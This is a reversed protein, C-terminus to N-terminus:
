QRNGNPAEKNLVPLLMRHLWYLEVDLHVCALIISLKGSAPISKILQPRTSKSNTRFEAAPSGKFTQVITVHHILQASM